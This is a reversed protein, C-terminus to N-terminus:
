LNHGVQAVHLLTTKGCVVLNDEKKLFDDVQQGIQVALLQDFAERGFVVVHHECDVDARHHSADECQM